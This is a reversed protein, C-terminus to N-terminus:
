AVVILKEKQMLPITLFVDPNDIIDQFLMICNKVRPFKHKFHSKLKLM